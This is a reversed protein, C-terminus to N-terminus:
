RFFPRFLGLAARVLRHTERILQLKDKRKMKKIQHERKMAAARPPFYELHAVKVPPHARTYKAGRGSEHAAWRQQIDQTHGCYLKRGKCEILYTCFQHREAKRKM